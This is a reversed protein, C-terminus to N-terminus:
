KADFAFQDRNFSVSGEFWGPATERCRHVTCEVTLMVGRPDPLDIQGGYGLPLRHRTVFGVGRLAADRVYLVRQPPEDGDVFLRLVATAHHRIRRNRRREQASRPAAELASVIIRAEKPWSAPGLDQPAAAQEASLLESGGRRHNLGPQVGSM